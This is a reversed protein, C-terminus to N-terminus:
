IQLNETACSTHKPVQLKTTNGSSSCFLTWLKINLYTCGSKGRLRCIHLNKLQVHDTSHSEPALLPAVYTLVPVLLIWSEIVERKLKQCLFKIAHSMANWIMKLVRGAWITTGTTQRKTEEKWSRSLGRWRSDVCPCFQRQVWLNKNSATILSPLFSWRLNLEKGRWIQHKINSPGRPVAGPHSCQICM